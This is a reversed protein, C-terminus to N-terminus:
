DQRQMLRVEQDTCEYGRGSLVEAMTTGASIAEQFYADVAEQGEAQQAKLTQCDLRFFEIQEDPPVSSNPDISVTTSADGVSQRAAKTAEAAAEEDRPPAQTTAEEIIETEQTPATLEKTKEEGGCRALLAVLAVALVSLALHRVAVGKGWIVWRVM